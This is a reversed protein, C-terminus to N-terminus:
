MYTYIIYYIYYIYIYYLYIYIDPFGGPCTKQGNHTKGTVFRKKTWNSISTKSQSHNNLDKSLVPHPCGGVTELRPFEARFPAFQSDHYPVWFRAAFVAMTGVLNPHVWLISSKKLMMNFFFICIDSGWIRDRSSVSVSDSGTRCILSKLFVISRYTSPKCGSM